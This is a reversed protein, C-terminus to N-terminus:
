PVGPLKAELTHASCLRLLRPSVDVYTSHMPDQLETPLAADMGGTGLPRDRCDRLEIEESCCTSARLRKGRDGDSNEGKATQRVRYLWRALDGSGM